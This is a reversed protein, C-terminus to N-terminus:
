SEHEVTKNKRKKCLEYFILTEEDYRPTQCEYESDETYGYDTTYTHQNALLWNDSELCWSCQGPEDTLSSYMTSWEFLDLQSM